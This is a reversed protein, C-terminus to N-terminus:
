GRARVSSTQRVRLVMAAHIVGCVPPLCSKCDEILKQVQGVDSVDCKMVLVSADYRQVERQLQQITDDGGGSRSLLVIHRAGHEIMYKAISRGLGGTGGVILHTGDPRFIL